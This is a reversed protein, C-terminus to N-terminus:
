LVNRILMAGHCIAVVEIRDQRIRYVIRYDGLIKERLDEDAYEPVVRGSRPFRPIERVVKVVRKAFIRAYVPSDQAIYECIGELHGAARPSWTLRGAM